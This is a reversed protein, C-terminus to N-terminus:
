SCSQLQTQLLTNSSDSSQMSHATEGPLTGTQAWLVGDTDVDLAIEAPHLKFKIVVGGCWYCNVKQAEGAGVGSTPQGPAPASM